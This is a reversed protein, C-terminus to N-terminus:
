KSQWQLVHRNIAAKGFNELDVTTEQFTPSGGAETSRASM